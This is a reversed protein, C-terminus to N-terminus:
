PKQSIVQFLNKWDLVRGVVWGSAMPSFLVQLANLSLPTCLQASFM